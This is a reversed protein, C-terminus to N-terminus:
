IEIVTCPNELQYNENLVSVNYYTTKGNFYNQYGQEHLHGGIQIYPQVRKIADRL